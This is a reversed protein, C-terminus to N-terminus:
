WPHFNGSFIYIKNLRKNIGKTMSYGGKHNKLVFTQYYKYHNQNMTFLAIVDVELTLSWLEIFGPCDIEL